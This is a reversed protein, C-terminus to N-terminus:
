YVEVNKNEFNGIKNWTISSLLNDANKSYRIHYYRIICLWKKTAHASSRLCYICISSLFISVDYQMNHKVNLLLQSQIKDTKTIEPVANNRKFM